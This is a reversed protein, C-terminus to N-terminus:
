VRIRCLLYSFINGSNEDLLLTNTDENPICISEKYHLKVHLQPNKKLPKIHKYGFNFM